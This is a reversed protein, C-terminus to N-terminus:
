DVGLDRFFGDGKAFRVDFGVESYLVMGKAMLM